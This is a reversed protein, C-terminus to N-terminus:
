VFLENGKKMNVLAEIPKVSFVKKYMYLFFFNNKTTM